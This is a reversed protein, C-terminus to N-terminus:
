VKPREEAQLALLALQQLLACLLYATSTTDVTSTTDGYFKIIVATQHVSRQRTHSQVERRGVGTSAQFPVPAPGMLAVPIALHQTEMQQRLM